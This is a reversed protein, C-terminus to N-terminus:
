RLGFLDPPVRKWTFRAPNVATTGPTDVEIIRAAVPEYAARFAVAAKVVLIRQRDPYIGCGVLQHISFPVQRKSTLMLLNQLDPTSGEAEIVATLGQNYYRQGGHRIETELFTGDHLSKVRGRIRVPKGHLDDTKGGVEMDFPQGIGASAATQAAKPDYMVSVWGTAKQKILEALMATSDGASGGGINDGMEVLVVPFKDSASAMRVGEAPDPLNLKLQNRTAWLRDSLDKAIARAKAEDGDVVAIVSAGMAPVDAYQYGGSVSVALIGAEKELRRTEEVIPALPEVNTNQFRINYLMGPKVIAQVPRVRKNVIGAMIEAAKIGRNRQDIHPVTKYTILATSDRVIEPSVNAHFDHTVVVPFGPGVQARVRRVIEADAHPFQEAVMAGHLALLLGDLKPAKKLNELLEATMTEFAESSVVGSPTARAVVMPYLDLGYKSAGEIYGAVEDQNKIWETLVPVRRTFDSLPTTKIMFSNSEHMIGAVGIRPRAQGFGLSSLTLM